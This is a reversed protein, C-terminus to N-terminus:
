SVQVEVASARVFDSAQKWFRYRACWLEEVNRPRPKRGQKEGEAGAASAVAREERKRECGILETLKPRPIKEM